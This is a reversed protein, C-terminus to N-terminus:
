QGRRAWLFVFQRGAGVGSNDPSGGGLAVSMVPQPGPYEQTASDTWYAFTADIAIAQPGLQRSALTAPNGGALPVKMVTGDQDLWYVYTEDVALSGPFSQETAPTVVIAGPKADSHGADEATAGTTEGCGWVTSFCLFAAVRCVLRPRRRVAVARRPSIM